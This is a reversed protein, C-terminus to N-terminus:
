CKALNNKTLSLKVCFFGEAWRLKEVNLLQKKQKNKWEARSDLLM